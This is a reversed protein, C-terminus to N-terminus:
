RSVPLPACPPPKTHIMCVALLMILADGRSLLSSAVYNLDYVLARSSSVREENAACVFTDFKWLRFRSKRFSIIITRSRYYLIMNSNNYMCCSGSDYRLRYYIRHLYKLTTLNLKFLTWMYTCKQFYQFTKHLHKELKFPSHFIKM